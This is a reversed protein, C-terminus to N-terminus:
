FSREEAHRRVEVASCDDVLEVLVEVNKDSSTHKFGGMWLKWDSGKNKEM